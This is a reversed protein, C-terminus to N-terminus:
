WVTMPNQSVNQSAKDDCVANINTLGRMDPKIEEFIKRVRSMEPRFSAYLLTKGLVIPSKGLCYYLTASPSPKKLTELLRYLDRSIYFTPSTRIFSFM